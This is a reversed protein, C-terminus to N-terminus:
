LKASILTWLDEAAYDMFQELSNLSLLKPKGATKSEALYSDIAEYVRQMLSATDLGFPNDLSLLQDPLTLGHRRILLSNLKTYDGYLWDQSFLETPSLEKCEDKLWAYKVAQREFTEKRNEDLFLVKSHFYKTFFVKDLHLHTLYGLVVPQSLEGGHQELFLDLNPVIIADNLNQVNWYHTQMKEKKGVADPMLVGCLFADYWAQSISGGPLKSQWGLPMKKLVCEAETLHIIYGPM